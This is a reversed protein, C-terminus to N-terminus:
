EIVEDASALLTPPVTLGIARATQLNIVLEFAVPRQVPMDAPKEGKLIRGAYIGVQRNREVNNPGYSILGGAEVFERLSYITPIAYRAALTALQIRRNSFLPDPSVILADQKGALTAFATDIDRPASVNLVAVERGRTAAAASIDKIGTEAAIPNNPNVLLGIRAAQPRLELLYGLRKAGLETVMFSLGTLNGGPRNFSTILGARVPDTGSSFVIPITSTAAKATVAAVTAVPTVIVAVQRRVLDAVLEPLRSTDNNAWRFEIAVNRGETFGTESLGKRFGAVVHANMDPSGTHLFGIVPMAQQSHAASPAVAAGGLAAGGLGAIFARRKM